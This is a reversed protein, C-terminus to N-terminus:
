KRRRETLSDSVIIKSPEHMMVLNLQKNIWTNYKARLTSAQGQTAISAFLNHHSDTSYYDLGQNVDRVFVWALPLRLPHEEDAMVNKIIEACAEKNGSILEREYGTHIGSISQKDLWTSAEDSMRNSYADYNKREPTDYNGNSPMLPAVACIWGWFKETNEKHKAKEEKDIRTKPYQFTFTNGRTDWSTSSGTVASDNHFFTLYKHDDEVGEWQKYEDGGERAPYIKYNPMYSSKPIYYDNDKSKIHQRGNGTQVFELGLPMARNLFSYRSVHAYDGSGNRIRITYGGKVRTWVIPALALSIKPTLGKFYSPKWNENHCIPDGMGSDYIAYCDDSIKEIREWKRKRNDVPIINLHANKGAIPKTEDYRKKIDDFSNIGFMRYNDYMSM